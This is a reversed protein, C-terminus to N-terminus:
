WNSSSIYCNMLSGSEPCRSRLNCLRTRAMALFVKSSFWNLCAWFIVFWVGVLKLIPLLTNKLFLLRAFPVQLPSSPVPNDAYLMVSVVKVYLVLSCSFCSGAIIFSTTCSSGTLSYVTSVINPLALFLM